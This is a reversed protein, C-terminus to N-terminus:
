NFGEDFIKNGLCIGVRREAFYKLVCKRRGRIVVNAEYKRLPEYVHWYLNDWRHIPHECVLYFPGYLLDADKQALNQTLEDLALVFGEMELVVEDHRPGVVEGRLLQVFRSLIEVSCLTSLTLDARVVDGAKEM